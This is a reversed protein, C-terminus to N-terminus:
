AKIVVRTAATAAALFVLLDALDLAVCGETPGGDGRAVHLFIASGCGAIVPADNYGLPVIVDYAADTRWLIECRGPYPLIVPRNYAPDSPDDCWGDVPELGRVSLACDPRALRDRRYLVGRLPWAGIPTAGDGERKDDSVGSRGLRCRWVLAGFRATGDPSVLLDM